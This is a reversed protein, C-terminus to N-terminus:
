LTEPPLLAEIRNALSDLAVDDWVDSEDCHATRAFRSSEAITRLTAVDERTFGFHHGHLYLAARQHDSLIPVTTTVVVMHKCVLDDAEPRECCGCIPRGLFVNRWEEATLAPTIPETM